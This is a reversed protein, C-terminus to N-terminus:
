CPEISNKREFQIRFRLARAVIGAVWRRPSFRPPRATQAMHDRRADHAQQELRYQEAQLALTQRYVANIEELSWM